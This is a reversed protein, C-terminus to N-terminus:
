FRDVSIISTDESQTITATSKKYPDLYLDTVDKHFPTTLQDEESFLANSLSMPNDIYNNDIVLDHELNPLSNFMKNTDDNLCSLETILSFPRYTFDIEEIDILEDGHRNFVKFGNSIKCFTPEDTSDIKRSQVM